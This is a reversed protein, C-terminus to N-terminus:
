GPLTMKADLWRPSPSPSPRRYQFWVRGHVGSLQAPGTVMLQWWDVQDELGGAAIDWRLQGRLGMTAREANPYPLATTATFTPM